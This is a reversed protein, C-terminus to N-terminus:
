DSAAQWGATITAAGSTKLRLHMAASLDNILLAGSGAGAFTIKVVGAATTPDTVDARYLDFWTYTDTSPQDPLLGESTVDGEHAVQVTITTAAGTTMFILVNDISRGIDVVSSFSGGGAAVADWFQNKDGRLRAPM